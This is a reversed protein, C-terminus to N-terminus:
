RQQLLRPLAAASAKAVNAKLKLKIAVVSAKAANVKVVSVKGASAKPAKTMIPPETVVANAKEASAKQMFKIMEVSAKAASAKQMSAPWITGPHFNIQKFLTPAQWQWQPWPWAPQM